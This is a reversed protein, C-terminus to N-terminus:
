PNIFNKELIRKEKRKNTVERKLYKEIMLSSIPAAWTGGYGANEVYVAIAIQPNDRPAFAIFCSHDEGHPNEATGTKGCVVIDKTRARAATGNEVVGQMAEIIPDFHVSDIMTYNKQYYIELEHPIDNDIKKIMHPKYYYGKNAIIAALNAMQMPTVLLEGQGISNSIITSAKWRKDGYIRDYLQNSPVSGGKEHTFDTGLKKGFGYSMVYKRWIDFGIEADEYRNKSKNRHIIDKYLWAFYWNSSKRIARRVNYVGSPSHDGMNPYPRVNRMTKETIIGEQLAISAQIMKFISGPPYAAQTARNFLPNLSDTVLAQYNKSYASGTLLNPNYTPASIISLIEGTKPEIAVVTGIKGQMLREGYAQLDLDITSQLKHGAIPSIDFAGDQYSGLEIEKANKMIFTLGKKGRLLDEYTKEIGKKGILNGQLYYNNNEKDRRLEGPSIQAIYGLANALVQHPYSRVTKSRFEFGDYNFRDQLRAFKRESITSMFIEPRYSAKNNDDKISNVAEMFEVETIGLLQCFKTTDPVVMKKLNVMLDFAPVNYVLIKGNRDHIIGRYPDIIKQKTTNSRAAAKYRDDLVQLYFLRSIYIIGVLIILIGIVYKKIDKM